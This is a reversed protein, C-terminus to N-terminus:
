NLLDVFNFPFNRTKILRLLEDLSNWVNIKLDESYNLLVSNTEFEDIDLIKYSLNKRVLVDIDLDVFDFSKGSLLPPLNINCYFSLLNGAPEHFRFVSYWCHKWFFEYATTGRRIVGIQEHEIDDSFKGEFLWYFDNEEILKATWTRHIKNDAKRSNIKFTKKTM